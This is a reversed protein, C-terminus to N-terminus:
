SRCEFNLVRAPAAPFYGQGWYEPLLAFGIDPGPLTDRKILGCIGIPTDDTVLSVRLLGHGHARYSTLPGDRM